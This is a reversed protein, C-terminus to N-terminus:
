LDPLDNMVTSNTQAQAGSGTQNAQKRLNKTEDRIEDLTEILHGLGYLLWCSLWGAVGGGILGLGIPWLGLCALIFGVVGCIGLCLYGVIQALTKLNSGINENM